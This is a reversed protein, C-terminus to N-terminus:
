GDVFQGMTVPTYLQETLATDVETVGTVIEAALDFKHGVFLAIVTERVDVTDTVAVCVEIRVIVALGIVTVARQEV